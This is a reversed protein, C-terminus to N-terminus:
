IDISITEIQEMNSALDHLNEQLSQIDLENFCQLEKLNDQMNEPM